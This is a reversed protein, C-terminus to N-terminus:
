GANVDALVSVGETTPGAVHPAACPCWGGVERACYPRQARAFAALSNGAIPPRHAWAHRHPQSALAPGVAHAADLLQQRLAFKTAFAYRTWNTANTPPFGLPAGAEAWSRAGHMRVLIMSIVARLILADPKTSTRLEDPLACPWILQPIDDLDYDVVRIRQQGDLDSMRRLRTHARGTTALVRDTIPTLAAAPQMGRAFTHADPSRVGAQRCWGNVVDAADGTTPAEIVPAAVQLLQHMVTPDPPPETGRHSGWNPVTTVGLHLALGIASQWARMSRLATHEAGAVTGRGLTLTDTIARDRVVADLPAPQTPTTTLDTWCIAGGAPHQCVRTDPAADARAPASGRLRNHVGPVNRCRPCHRSLFVQHTPCTVAWPLRWRVQWVGDTALCVPCFSTGSLRVWHRTSVARIARLDARESLGNLDFARQDFVSLHMREVVGPDVGLLYATRVALDPDIRVGLLGPWYGGRRLGIHDGLTALTCGHQAARRTLYSVLAEGPTPELALPLRM